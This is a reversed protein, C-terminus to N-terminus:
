GFVMNTQNYSLAKEKWFDGFDLDMNFSLDLDKSNNLFPLVEM